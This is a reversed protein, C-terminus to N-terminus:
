FGAPGCAPHPNHIAFGWFLFGHSRTIPGYIGDQNVGVVAQADQMAETTLPGYHNDVTLPTGIVGSYCHNLSQQLEGVASSVSGPGVICNFNGNFSPVPALFNGNQHDTVTNCTATALAIRAHALAVNQNTTVVLAVLAVGVVAIACFTRILKTM